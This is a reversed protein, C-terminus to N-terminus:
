EADRVNYASECRNAERVVFLAASKEAARKGRIKKVRIGVSLSRGSDASDEAVEASALSPYHTIGFTCFLATLGQMREGITGKPRGACAPLVEPGVSTAPM